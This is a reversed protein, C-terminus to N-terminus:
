PDLKAQIFEDDDPPPPLPEGDERPVDFRNVQKSLMEKSLVEKDMSFLSDTKDETNILGSYTFGLSLMACMILVLLIKYM